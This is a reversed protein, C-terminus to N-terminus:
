QTSGIVRTPVISDVPEKTVDVEDPLLNAEDDSIFDVLVSKDESAKHQELHDSLLKTEDETIFDNLDVEVGEEASRADHMKKTSSGTPNAPDDIDDSWMTREDDDIYDEIDEEDERTTSQALRTIFGAVGGASEYQSFVAVFPRKLPISPM